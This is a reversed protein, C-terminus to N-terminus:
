GSANGGVKEQVNIRGSKLKKRQGIFVTGMNCKNLFIKLDAIYRDVKKYPINKFEFNDGSHIVDEGFRFEGKWEHQGPSNKHCDSYVTLKKLGNM